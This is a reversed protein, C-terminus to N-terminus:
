RKFADFIDIIDQLLNPDMNLALDIYAQRIKNADTKLVEGCLINFIYKGPFIDKWTGNTLATELRGKEEATYQEISQQNIKNQFDGM